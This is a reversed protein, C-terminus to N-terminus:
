RNTTTTSPVTTHTVTSWPQWVFLAILAAIAIVAVLSVMAVSNGSDRAVVIKREEM